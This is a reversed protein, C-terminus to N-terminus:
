EVEVVEGASYGVFEPAYMSQLVAPGVKFEGAMVARLRYRLTYEGAPLRTFFYNAGSDRIEEYYGLGQDRRYGSKISVPEFGAGRPDRLHVFEATHKARVSLQVELQEGVAVQEGPALPDLVWKDGDHHRRFWSREVALLDGDATEPMIETSFHWTASVFATGKGTKDVSVVGMTAPDIEDGPIIVRNHAGTYEDPEFVFEQVRPGVTVKATERAGLGGELELYHVLAYAVEATARTSSWHNLKKNLLLWQVLGHRRSDNPSLETM